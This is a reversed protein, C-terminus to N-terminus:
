RQRRLDDDQLEARAIGAVVRLKSAARVGGDTLGKGQDWSCACPPVRFPAALWKSLEVPSKCSAFWLSGNRQRSM